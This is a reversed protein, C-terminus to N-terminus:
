QWGEFNKKIINVIDEAKKEPNIRQSALYAKNSIDLYLEKNKILRKLISALEHSDNRKFSLGCGFDDVMKVGGMGRNVILPAGCQLVDNLRMGWPEYNGAGVYVSCNEYLKMLKELSVFGLFHVNTLGKSNVFAKMQKWLPGEQTINCEPVIGEKKLEVLAELLLMPSRHWQHIGTLLIMFNEWHRESRKVCKANELKPSYYGCSIIKNKPWGIKVMSKSDDGSLNVIFDSATIQEKVKRPLIFNIYIQKIIRKWGPTMNCPAESAIGVRCGMTYADLILHQYVEVSQYAGFIHNAEKHEELISRGLKYDDGIFTIDMDVFEDESFGVKIRLDANKKWICLKLPVKFFVSLGRYFALTSRCYSHAWVVLGLM